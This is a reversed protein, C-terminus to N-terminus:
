RATSPAHTSSMIVQAFRCQTEGGAPGQVTFGCAIILVWGDLLLGEPIQDGLSAPLEM